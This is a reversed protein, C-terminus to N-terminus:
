TDMECFYLREADTDYIGLTFNFSSRHLIDAGAAIGEEAQRDILRYSGLEIDPIM